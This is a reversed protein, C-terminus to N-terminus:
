LRNVTMNTAIIKVTLAVNKDENIIIIMIIMIIEDILNLVVGKPWEM